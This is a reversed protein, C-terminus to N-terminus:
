TGQLRRIERRRVKVRSPRHFPRAFNDNGIETSILLSQFVRCSSMFCRVLDANRIQTANSRTTSTEARTSACSRRQSGEKSSQLVGSQLKISLSFTPISTAKQNM